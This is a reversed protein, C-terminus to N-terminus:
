AVELTLPPVCAAHRLLKCSTSPAHMAAHMLVECAPCILTCVSTPIRSTATQHLASGLRSSVLQPLAFCSSCLSLCVLASQLAVANMCTALMGVHDASVRDLGAWASEVGRFFNGGGVVIAIEVGEAAAAAVERAM